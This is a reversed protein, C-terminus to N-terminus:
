CFLEPINEAAKQTVSVTKLYPASAPFPSKALLTNLFKDFMKLPTSKHVCTIANLQLSKECFRKMTFLLTSFVSKDVSLWVVCFIFNEM